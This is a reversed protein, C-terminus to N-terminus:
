REVLSAPDPRPVGATLGPEPAPLVVPDSDPVPEIGQVQLIKGRESRASEVTACNTKPRTNGFVIVGKAGGLCRVTPKSGNAFSEVYASGGRITVLNRGKGQLRITNIGTGVTITNHWAGGRVFNKGNGLSIVNTGRGGYVINNGNAAKIRTTKSRARAGGTGQIWDAWLVNNGGKGDISGGGHGGYLKDPGDTGTLKFRQWTGALRSRIARPGEFTVINACGKVKGARKADAIYKLEPDVKKNLHLVSQPNGGCDIKKFQFVNAMYVNNVGSGLTISDPGSLAYITNDGNGASITVGGSGGNVVNNGDGLRVIDPAGGPDVYNNGNGLDITDHGSGTYVTNNGNGATVKDDGTGGEIYNDGGGGNIRNGSRIGFLFDNGAGGTLTDAGGGGVLVDGSPSNGTLNDPGPTGVKVAASAAAPVLALALAAPALRLWVAPRTVPNTM